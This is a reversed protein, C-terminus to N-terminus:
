DQDSTLEDAGEDEEGAETPALPVKMVERLVATAYAGKPLFFSLWVGEPVPEV